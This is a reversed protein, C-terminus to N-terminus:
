RETQFRIMCTGNYQTLDYQTVYCGDTTKLWTRKVM